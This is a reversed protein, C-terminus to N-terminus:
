LGFSGEDVFIVRWRMLARWCVRASEREYENKSTSNRNQLRPSCYSRPNKIMKLKFQHGASRVAGCGPCTKRHKTHFTRNTRYTTRYRRQPKINATASKKGVKFNDLLSFLVIVNSKTLLRSKVGFESFIAFPGQNYPTCCTHNIRDWFLQLERCPGIASTRYATRYETRDRHQFATRDCNQFLRLSRHPKLDSLARPM